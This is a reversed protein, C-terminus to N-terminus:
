KPHGFTLHMAGATAMAAEAAVESESYYGIEAKDPRAISIGVGEVSYMDPVCVLCIVLVVTALVNCRYCHRVEHLRRETQLLNGLRM